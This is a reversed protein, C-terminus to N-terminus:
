NNELKESKINVKTGNTKTKSTTNQVSNSLQNQKKDKLKRIEKIAFTLLYLLSGYLLLCILQININFDRLLYAFVIIFLNITVIYFSSRRHSYGLNTYHHHIHNRDATFPNRKYKFLRLFFIRTTDAIPYFLVAFVFVPASNYFSMVESGQHYKVFSICLFAMLFGIVLSGTDGMFLKRSVSFNFRLFAVITGLLGAAIIALSTQNYLFFFVGMVACGVLGVGGALGDIGDILNFANIVLLFVFISLVISVTYSLEYIGFIGSLSLIRTDTFFVLLCIAAMEGLLKTSVSITALDDKLGFFFLITIAGMVLLIVKTDLFAGIFTMVLMLSLFIAVGGLTPTAKRHSSRDEPEAMLQKDHSVYLISPISLVCFLYGLVMALIPWAYPYKEPSLENFFHPLM